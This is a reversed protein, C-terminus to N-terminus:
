RQGSMQYCTFSNDNLLSTQERKCRWNVVKYETQVRRGFFTVKMNHKQGDDCSVSSMAFGIEKNLLAAGESNLTASWCEKSEGVLWDSRASIVTEERHSTWGVSDLWQYGGYIAAAVIMLIFLCGCGTGTSDTNSKNVIGGLTFANHKSEITKGRNPNPGPIMKIGEVRATGLLRYDPWQQFANPFPEEAEPASSATYRVAQGDIDVTYSTDRSADHM